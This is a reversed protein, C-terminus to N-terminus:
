REMRAGQLTRARRAPRGTGCWTRARRAPRGTGCWDNTAEERLAELSLLVRSVAPQRSSLCFRNM